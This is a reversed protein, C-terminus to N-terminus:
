RKVVEKRQWSTKTYMSKVTTVPEIGPPVNEINDQPQINRIEDNNNM